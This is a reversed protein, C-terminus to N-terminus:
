PRTHDSGCDGIRGASMTVTTWGARPIAVLSVTDGAEQYMGGCIVSGLVEVAVGGNAATVVSPGMDDAHRLLVLTEKGYDISAACGPVLAALEDGSRVFTAAGIALKLGWSRGRNVRHAQLCGPEAFPVARWAIAGASAPPAPAPGSAAACAAFLAAIWSAASHAVSM